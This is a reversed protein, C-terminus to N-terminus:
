NLIEAINKASTIVGSTINKIVYSDYKGKHVLINILEYETSSNITFKIGHRSAKYCRIYLRPRMADNNHFDGSYCKVKKM